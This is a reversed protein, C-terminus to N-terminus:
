ELAKVDPELWGTRAEWSMLRERSYYELPLNKDGCVRILSTALAALTCDPNATSLFKRIVRIYFLTITEHYGGTKTQEIGSVKNYRMIGDRILRTAAAEEHRVLYWLAVVLHAHHTWRARPLTCSEFERVLRLVEESSRYPAVRERSIVAEM